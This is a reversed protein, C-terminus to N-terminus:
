HVGLCIGFAHAVRDAVLAIFPGSAAAWLLIRQVRAKFPSHKHAIPASETTQTLDMPRKNCRHNFWPLQGCEPCRSLNNTTM